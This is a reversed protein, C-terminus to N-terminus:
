EQPPGPLIEHIYEEGIWGMMGGDKGITSVIYFKKADVTKTDLVLVATGSKVSSLIADCVGATAKLNIKEDILQEDAERGLTVFDGKEPSLALAPQTLYLFTLLFAALWGLRTYPLTQFGGRRGDVRNKNTMVRKLTKM